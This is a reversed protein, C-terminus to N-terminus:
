GGHIINTPGAAISGHWKGIDTLAELAELAEGKAALEAETLRHQRPARDYIVHGDDTVSPHGSARLDGFEVPALREVEGSLHEMSDIVSQQGGDRLVTAAYAQLMVHHQEM